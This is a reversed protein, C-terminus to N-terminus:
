REGPWHGAGHYIHLIHIASETVEYVIIYPSGSIALERTRAIRGARGKSPFAGLGNAADFLAKAIARRALEEVGRGAQAVM